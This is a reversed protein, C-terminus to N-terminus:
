KGELQVMVHDGLRVAQKWGQEAVIAVAEKGKVSTVNLKAVYHPDDGLRVVTLVQGVAVSREAALKIRVSRGNVRDVVGLQGVEGGRDLTLPFGLDAWDANPQNLRDGDELWYLKGALDNGRLEKVGPHFRKILTQFASEFDAVAKERAQDGATAQKLMAIDKALTDLLAQREQEARKARRAEVVQVLDQLQNSADDPLDGDKVAESLERLLDHVRQRRDQGVAITPDNAPVGASPQTPKQEVAPAQGVARSQYVWDGTGLGVFGAVFVAAGAIKLKTMLMAHLVGHTLTEVSASATGRAAARVAAAVLGAGIADHPAFAAAMGAAPLLGRRVLAARLRQRARGLRSEITRVACGLRAAAEAHSLLQKL